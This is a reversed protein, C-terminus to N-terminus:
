HKAPLRRDDCKRHEGCFDAISNTLETVNRQRAEYENKAEYKEKLWADYRTRSLVELAVDAVTMDTTDFCFVSLVEDCARRAADALPRDQEDRM